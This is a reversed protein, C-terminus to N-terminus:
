RLENGCLVCLKKKTPETANITALKVIQYVRLIFYLLAAFVGGFIGLMLWFWPTGHKEKKATVFLWIGILICFAQKIILYSYNIRVNSARFESIAETPLKLVYLYHVLPSFFLHLLWLPLIVITAIEVKKIFRDSQSSAEEVLEGKPKISQYIRLMFYLLAALVGTFVGLMLWLWPTGEKEKKAQYFLWIGILIYVLQKLIWLVWVSYIQWTTLNAAQQLSSARFILTKAIYGMPLQLVWLVLLIIAFKELKKMDM